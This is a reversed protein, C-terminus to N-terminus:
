QKSTNATTTTNATTISTAIMTGTKGVVNIGYPAVLLLALESLSPIVHTTYVLFSVWIM